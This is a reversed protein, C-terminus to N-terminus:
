CPRGRQRELAEPLTRFWVLQSSLRPRGSRRRRFPVRPAWLMAAQGCRQGPSPKGCCQSTHTHAHTRTQHSLPRATRHRQRHAARFVIFLLLGGYGHRLRCVPRCLYTSLQHTPTTSTAPAAATTTSNLPEPHPPRKSAPHKKELNRPRLPAFQWNAKGNASGAIPKPHGKIPQRTASYGMVRFLSSPLHSQTSIHPTQTCIIIWSSKREVAKAEKERKEM